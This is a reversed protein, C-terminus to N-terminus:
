VLLWMWVKNNYNLIGVGININYNYRYIWKYDNGVIDMGNNIIWTITRKVNQLIYNLKLKVDLISSWKYNNGIFWEYDNRIKLPVLLM